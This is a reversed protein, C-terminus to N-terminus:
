KLKEELYKKRKLKMAQLLKENHRIECAKVWEVHYRYKWYVSETEALPKNLFVRAYFERSLYYEQTM